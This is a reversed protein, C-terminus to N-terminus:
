STLANLMKQLDYVPITIIKDNLIESQSLTVIFGHNIQLKNQANLLGNIERERNSANVEFTVQIAILLKNIKVIFDCEKAENYFYIGTCGNKILEQFVFNEFLRGKNESFNLSTATILGNDIAYLKRKSKIQRKIKYSFQHIEYLMFAEQMANIYARISIDNIGTARALSNYSFPVGLNNFIYFALEKFSRSDRINKNVICDRILISDYYNTLIEHKIGEDKQLVIEPFSGHKLSTEIQNLAMPRNQLVSLEDPLKFHLLTESLSLPYLENVVYRGSLLASYSGM